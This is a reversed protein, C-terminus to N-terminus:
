FLFRFYKGQFVILNNHMSSVAAFDFFVRSRCYFWLIEFDFVVWFFCREFFCFSLLLMGEPTVRRVVTYGKERLREWFFFFFVFDEKQVLKLEFGCSDFLPWLDSRGRGYIGLVFAKVYRSVRRVRRRVGPASRAFFFGEQRQKWSLGPPRPYVICSAKPGFIACQM